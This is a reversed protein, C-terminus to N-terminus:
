NSKYNKTTSKGGEFVSVLANFGFIISLLSLNEKDAGFRGLGHLGTDKSWSKVEVGQGNFFLIQTMEAEVKKM